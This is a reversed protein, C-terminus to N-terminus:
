RGTDRDERVLEEGSTQYRDPTMVRIAALRALTESLRTPNLPRARRLADRLETELSRHNAKAAERYDALLADDLDGILVQGMFQM